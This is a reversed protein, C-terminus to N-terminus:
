DIYEVIEDVAESAGLDGICEMEAERGRVGEVRGV